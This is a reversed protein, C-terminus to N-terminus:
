SSSCIEAGLQAALERVADAMRAFVDDWVAFDTQRFLRASPYWPSDDRDFMWRWDPHDKLAVFVRTGFAGAVHVLSTDTTVVLDLNSLVALTDIFADKGSDFDDGLLTVKIDDPVHKLQDLGHNKQLSILRVGPIEAFRLFQALPVSRGEDIKATPNGQWNIGIRFGQRGIRDGWKRVREPDAAFYPVNQPVTDIRTGFKFPLSM